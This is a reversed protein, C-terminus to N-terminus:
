TRGGHGCVTAAVMPIPHAHRQHHHGHVQELVKAQRHPGPTSNVGSWHSPAGISAKIHTSM